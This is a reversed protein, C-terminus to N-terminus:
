FLTLAPPTQSKPEVVNTTLGPFNSPTSPLDAASISYDFALYRQIAEGAEKYSFAKVTGDADTLTMTENGPLLGFLQVKALAVETNTINVSLKPPLLNGFTESSTDGIRAQAFLLLMLWEWKALLEFTGDSKAFVLVLRLLAGPVGKGTRGVGNISGLRGKLPSDPFYGAELHGNNIRIHLVYRPYKGSKRWTGKVPNFPPLTSKSGIFALQQGREKFVQNLVKVVKKSAEKTTSM